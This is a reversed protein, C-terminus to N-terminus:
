PLCERTVMDPRRYSQQTAVNQCSDVVESWDNYHTLAPGPPLSKMCQAFIERRMCQDLAPQVPMDCGALLAILTASGTLRCAPM